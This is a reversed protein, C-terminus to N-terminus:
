RKAPKGSKRKVSDNNERMWRVASQAAGAAPVVFREIRKGRSRDVAQASWREIEDTHDEFWKYGAYAFAGIKPANRRIRSYKM